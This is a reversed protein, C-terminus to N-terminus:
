PYVEELGQQHEPTMETKLSELWDLFQDWNNLSFVKVGYRNELDVRPDAVLSAMPQDMVFVDCYPAYTSIHRVDHLFGGLRQLTKEKNTYAGRKVMDKLTAFIRSSLWEAPAEAFHDSGLFMVVQKLREDYPINEPFCRLLSEVVKSVIPSDFLADVDDNALRAAYKFYSDFYNRAASNIELAVDQDFSNKSERWGPFMDVLGELAQQKLDRMLDIDGIYRGVDIRMYDDWKHIDGRVADRQKLEFDVPAGTLFAKFARIIQTKGVAYEPEFEHGRSADKIFKMLDEKNKNDYGRWQHTEDEHISSFPSVLLQLSSVERIKKATTVFRSDHERFASSFFFQDLYLVKKRVEPLYVTISHQCSKCGRLIRNDRVFVNGFSKVEGCKPCDGITRTILM